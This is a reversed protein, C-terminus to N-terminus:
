SNGGTGDPTYHAVFAYLDYSTADRCVYLEYYYSGELLTFSQPYDAGYPFRQMSLQTWEGNEQLAGSEDLPYAAAAYVMVYGGDRTALHADASTPTIVPLASLYTHPRVVATQTVTDGSWSVHVDSNHTMQRLTRGLYGYRVFIDQEPIPAANMDYKKMCCIGYIARGEECIVEFEYCTNEELSLMGNSVDIYKWEAIKDRPYARCVISKVDLASDPVIRFAVGAERWGIYKGDFDFPASAIDANIAGYPYLVHVIEQANAGYIPRSLQLPPADTLIPLAAVPDDETTKNPDYHAIFGYRDFSRGDFCVYVGYYHSGELLEFTNNVVTFKASQGGSGIILENHEDVPITSIVFAAIEMNEFLTVQAETANIECLGPLQYPASAATSVVEGSSPDMGNWYASSLSSSIKKQKEEGLYTYGIQVDRPNTPSTLKVPAAATTIGYVPSGTPTILRIEYYYGAEFVLKNEIVECAEGATHDYLPYRTVTISQAEIREDWKIEFQTPLEAFRITGIGAKAYMNEGDAPDIGREGIPSLALTRAMNLSLLPRELWVSSDGAALGSSSGEAVTEVACDCLTTAGCVPCPAAPCCVHNFAPKGCIECLIPRACATVTLMLVSLVFVTLLFYLLRTPHAKM